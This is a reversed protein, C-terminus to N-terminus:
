TETFSIPLRGDHELSHSWPFESTRVTTAAVIDHCPCRAAIDGDANLPRLPWAHHVNPKQGVNRREAARVAYRATGALSLLCQQRPPRSCPAGM